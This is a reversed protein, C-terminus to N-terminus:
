NLKHIIHIFNVFNIRNRLYKYLIFRLNPEICSSFKQFWTDLNSNM